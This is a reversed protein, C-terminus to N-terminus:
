SPSHLAASSVCEWAKSVPRDDNRGLVALAHRWTHRVPTSLKFVCVGVFLLVFGCYSRPICYFIRLLSRLQPDILNSTVTFEESRSHM